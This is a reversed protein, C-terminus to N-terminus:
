SGLPIELQQSVWCLCIGLTDHWGWEHTVINQSMTLSSKKKWANILQETKAGSVEATM